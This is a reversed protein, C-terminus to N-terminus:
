LARRVRQFSLALLPLAPLYLLLLANLLDIRFFFYLGIAAFFVM